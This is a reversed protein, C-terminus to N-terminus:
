QGYTREGEDGGYPRGNKFAEVADKLVSAQQQPHSVFSFVYPVEDDKTGVQVIGYDFLQEILGSQKYSVDVVDGLGVSKVHSSFPTLQTKEVISENTLFFTNNVYVWYIVYFGTLLLAVVCAGILLLLSYSLSQPTQLAQMIEPLLVMAAIMISVASFVVLAPLLLGIFHRRVSLLVYEHESLDLHPYREVSRRHREAVELPIEQAVPNLPRTMHVVAVPPQAPAPSAASPHAFLPQGNADYAVPREPDTAQTNDM